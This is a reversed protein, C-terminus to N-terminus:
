ARLTDDEAIVSGDSVEDATAPPHFDEGLAVSRNILLVGVLALWIGFLALTLGVLGQHSSEPAYIAFAAAAAFLASALLGAIGALRELGPLRVLPFNILWLWLALLLGGISDTFLSENVSIIRFQAGAASQAASSMATIQGSYALLLTANVLTIGAFIVMGAIGMWQSVAGKEGFVVRRLTHPLAIISLFPLAELGSYLTILLPFHSAWTLLPLYNQAQLSLQEFHLFQTPGLGVISIFPMFIALLVGAFLASQGRARIKLSLM